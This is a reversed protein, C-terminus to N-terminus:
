SKRLACGATSSVFYKLCTRNLDGITTFISPLFFNPTTIIGSPSHFNYLCTESTHYEAKVYFGVLRFVIFLINQYHLELDSVLEYPTDAFFVKYGGSSLTRHGREYKM